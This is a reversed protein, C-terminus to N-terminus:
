VERSKELDNDINGQSKKHYIAGDLGFAVYEFVGFGFIFGRLYGGGVVGGRGVRQGRGFM